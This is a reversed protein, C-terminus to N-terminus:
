KNLTEWRKRVNINVKKIGGKVVQIRGQNRAEKTVKKRHVKSERGKWNKWKNEGKLNYIDNMQKRKQESREKKEEFSIKKDRSENM